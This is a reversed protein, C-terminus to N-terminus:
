LPLTLELKSEQKIIITSSERDPYESIVSKLIDISRDPSGDDVFVYQISKWTQEFLSVACKRIYAEVKYVPVIVSVTPKEMMDM